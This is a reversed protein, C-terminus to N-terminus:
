FGIIEINFAREFFWIAALVSIGISGAYFVACRYFSTRRILYAAPFCVLVIATQGLEVGLNFGLLSVALSTSSLGLDLLVNAFGFGHVLGFVFAIAWGSLPLLGYVNNLATVVISLAIASEVWSSPLTVYEMVALWLTISHALTFVTVIKLVSRLPLEFTAAPHWEGNERQMVAPLLLALLFLIHDFGIWIHWVGVLLFELLTRVLNREGAVLKLRPSEPSLVHPLSASGNDFQVLGRHTPDIDFLLSYGIELAPVDHRCDLGLDLVAYGGDSHQTFLVGLLEMGCKRGDAVIHLRSLAHAVIAQQQSKLEGWTIEDDQNGDLGIVSELDKIAIDWRLRLGDKDKRFSLYSDSPKHAMADTVASCIILVLFLVSRISRM